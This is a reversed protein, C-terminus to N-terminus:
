LWFQTTSPCALSAGYWVMHTGAKCQLQSTILSAPEGGGVMGRVCEWVRECCGCMNRGGGCGSGCGGVCGWGVVYEVGRRAGEGCGLLWVWMVCVGDCGSLWM